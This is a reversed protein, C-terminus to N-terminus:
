LGGSPPPVLTGIGYNASAFYRWSYWPEVTDEQTVVAVKTSYTSGLQFNAWESKPYSGLPFWPPNDVTGIPIAVDWKNEWTAHDILTTSTGSYPIATALIDGQFAIPVSSNLLYMSLACAR